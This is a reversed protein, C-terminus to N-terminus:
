NAEIFEWVNGVFDPYTESRNTFAKRQYHHGSTTTFCDASAVSTSRDPETWVESTAYFVNPFGHLVFNGTNCALLVITRDPYEAREDSIVKDTPECPYTDGPADQIIWQDKVIAGGHCLIVVASSFRRHVETQWALASDQLSADRVDM